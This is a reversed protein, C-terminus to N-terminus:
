RGFRDRPARTATSRASACCAALRSRSHAGVGRRASSPRQAPDPERRLAAVSGPRAAVAFAPGAKGHGAPDRRHPRSPIGYAARGRCGNTRSPCLVGRCRQLAAAELRALTSRRRRRFGPKRLSRITSSPSSGCDARRRRSRRNSIPSRSATSSRRPATPSNPWRRKVIMRRCARHGKGRPRPRALGRRHSPRVSIRRDASRAPGPRCLGARTM